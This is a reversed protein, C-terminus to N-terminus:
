PERIARAFDAAAEAATRKGDLYPQWAEELPGRYEAWTGRAFIGYVMPTHDPEGAERLVRRVAEGTTYFLVIHWLDGPSVKAAKAASELTRPLPDSDRMMQHSAEHFVVEVADAGTYAPSILLHAGGADPFASNAGAWNVTEVVDVRLPLSWRKGYWTELRTAIRDEHKALRSQLAAIWARNREDQVKWRCASYAPAAAALVGEAIGLFERAGTDRVENDFGALHLRLAFQERGTWQGASVVEAYYDVARDWAARVPTALKAFCAAEDGSHFLESKRRARALGQALLADNLNTNFDSYFEFRKSTAVPTRLVSQAAGRGPLCGLTIGVIVAIHFWRRM